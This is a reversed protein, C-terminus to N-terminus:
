YLKSKHSLASHNFCIPCTVLPLRSQDQQLRDVLNLTDYTDERKFGKVNPSRDDKPSSSYAQAVAAALVSLPSLGEGRSSGQSGSVADCVAYGM